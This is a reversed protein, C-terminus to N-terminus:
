LGLPLCPDGWAMGCSMGVKNDCMCAHVYELYKFIISHHNSIHKEFTSYM